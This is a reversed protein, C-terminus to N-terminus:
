VIAMIRSNIAQWIIWRLKRWAHLLINRIAFPLRAGALVLTPIQRLM